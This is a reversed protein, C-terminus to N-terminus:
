KELPLNDHYALHYAQFVHHYCVNILWKEKRVVTKFIAYKAKDNRDELQCLECNM